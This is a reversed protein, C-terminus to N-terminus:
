INNNLIFFLINLSYDFLPWVLGHGGEVEAGGLTEALLELVELSAFGGGTSGGEAFGGVGVVIHPEAGGLGVIQELPGSEDSPGGSRRVLAADELEGNPDAGVIRQCRRGNREHGFHKMGVHVKAGPLNAQINQLLFPTRLLLCWNFGM